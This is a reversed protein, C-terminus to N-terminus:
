KKLITTGDHGQDRCSTFPNNSQIMPNDMM